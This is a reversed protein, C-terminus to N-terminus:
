FTEQFIEGLLSLEKKNSRRRIFVGALGKLANQLTAPKQTYDITVMAGGGRQIFRIGNDALPGKALALKSKILNLDTSLEKCRSNTYRKAWSLTLQRLQGLTKVLNTLDHICFNCPSYPNIQLSVKRISNRFEPTLRNEIWECFQYEAHTRNSCFRTDTSDLNVFLLDLFRQGHQPSVLYGAYSRVTRDYSYPISYFEITNLGSRITEMFKGIEKPASNGILLLREASKQLTLSGKAQQGLSIPKTLSIRVKCYLSGLKRGSAKEKQKRIIDLVNNM